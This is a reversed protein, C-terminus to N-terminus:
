RDYKKPPAKRAFVSGCKPLPIEPCGNWLGNADGGPSPSDEEVTLAQPTQQVQGDAIQEHTAHSPELQPIGLVHDDESRSNHENRDHTGASKTPEV